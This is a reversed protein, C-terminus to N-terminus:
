CSACTVLPQWERRTTRQAWSCWWCCVAMATAAVADRGARAAAAGARGRPPRAARRQAVRAAPLASIEEADIEAVGADIPSIETLTSLAHSGDGM